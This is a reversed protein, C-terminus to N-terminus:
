GTDLVLVDVEMEVLQRAVEAVGARIGIAAAVLLRGKTDLSPQMIELRVSDAKTLIGKLKGEANVVPVAQIVM